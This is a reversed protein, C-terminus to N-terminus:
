LASVDGSALLKGDPSFALASVINQNGEFVVTEKLTEGDWENLHVKRDQSFSKLVVFLFFFVLATAVSTPLIM